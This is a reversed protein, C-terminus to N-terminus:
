LICIRRAQKARFLSAATEGESRRSATGDDLFFTINSADRTAIATETFFRVRVGRAHHRRAVRALQTSHHRNPEFGFACVSAHRDAPLHGFFNDFAQQLAASRYSVAALPDLLMAAEVNAGRNAGADIFVHMCGDALLAARSRNPDVPRNPDLEAKRTVLHAPHPLIPELSAAPGILNAHLQLNSGSAATIDTVVKPPPASEGARPLLRLAAALRRLQVERLAVRERLTVADLSLSPLGALDHVGLRAIYRALQPAAIGNAELWKAVPTEISSTMWEDRRKGRHRRQLRPSLGDRRMLANLRAIRRRQVTGFGLAAIDNGTLWLLDAGREVGLGSFRRRLAEDHPVQALILADHLTAERLLAPTSTNSLIRRLAPSAQTELALLRLVSPDRARGVPIGLPPESYNAIRSRFRQIADLTRGGQVRHWGEVRLDRDTLESLADVDEVGHRVFSTALHELGVDRLLSWGWALAGRALSCLLLLQVRCM